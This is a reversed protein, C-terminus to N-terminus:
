LFSINVTHGRYLAAPTFSNVFKITKGGTDFGLETKDLPISDSQFIFFLKCAYGMIWPHPFVM